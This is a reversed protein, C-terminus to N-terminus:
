KNEEHKRFMNRLDVASYEFVEGDLKFYFAKETYKKDFEYIDGVVQFELLRSEIPPVNCTYAKNFNKCADAMYSTTFKKNLPAMGISESDRPYIGISSLRSEWKPISVFDSSYYDEYNINTPNFSYVPKPKSYVKFLLNLNDFVYNKGLLWVGCDSHFNDGILKYFGDRLNKLESDDAIHEIYYQSDEKSKSWDINM